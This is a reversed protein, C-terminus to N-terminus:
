RTTTQITPPSLCGRRNNRCHYSSVCLHGKDAWNQLSQRSSSAIEFFFNEKRFFSISKRINVDNSANWDPDFIVVVNASVLNLGVGGVKTSILFIFKSVNRNFTDAILQRKDTAVDGDLRCYNLKMSRVFRELIDLMRTKSTFLLVKDGNEKWKVLLQSLVKLKGSLEIPSSNNLSHIQKFLQEDKACANKMFTEDQQQKEATVGDRTDPSLLFLHNAIKRLNNLCPFLLKDLKQGDFSMCCQRKTKNVSRGCRCIEQSDRLIVYEPLQLVTEYIKKQLKTLPCFIINDDKKPLLDAIISKDRRLAITALKERMLKSAKRGKALELTTSDFRNCRKIPMVYVERFNQLNGFCGPQAFNLLTWLEELDNQMLTGTLGYRRGCTLSNCAISVKSKYNKIRHVEDLFVACWEITNIKEIDAQLTEYSTLLVQIRGASIDAFAPDRKPGHYMKVKSIRGWKKLERKWHELCTVPGIILFKKREKMKMQEQKGKLTSILSVVQITKGLGM